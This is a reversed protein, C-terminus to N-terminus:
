ARPRRAPRDSVRTRASLFIRVASVGFFAYMFFFLLVMRSHLYFWGIFSVAFTTVAATFLAAATKILNSFTDRSSGILWLAALSLIGAVGTSGLHAISVQQPPGFAFRSAYALGTCLLVVGAEALRM